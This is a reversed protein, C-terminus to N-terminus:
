EYDIITGTAVGREIQAVTPNSLVLTLTEDVEDHSDYEIPVYVTKQVDGQDFVLTGSTAEYDRGATATGNVTTYNVTVETDAGRDLTVIFSMYKRHASAESMSADAVSIQMPGGPKAAGCSDDSTGLDTLTMRFTGGNEFRYLGAAIYYTGTTDLKVNSIATTGRGDANEYTNLIHTGDSRYVGRVAPYQLTLTEDASSGEVKIQYCHDKTLTTRYWDADDVTEIRNQVTNGPSITATTSTDGPVSDQYAQGGNEDDRITAIAKRTGYSFERGEYASPYLGIGFIETGEVLDDDVTTFTLEISTQGYGIQVNAGAPHHPVYDDDKRAGMSGSPLSDTGTGYGVSLFGDIPPSITIVFVIDGGETTSASAINVEPMRPPPAVTVTYTRKATGDEATVEVTIVNTGATWVMTGDADVTGNLKIVTTADSDLPTATVTTETVGSARTAIYTQTDRDFTRALTVGSLELSHLRAESAPPPSRFVQIGYIETSGDKAQAEWQFPNRHYSPRVQWGPTNLDDDYLPQFNDAYPEIQANPDRPQITITTTSVNHAVTAVSNLLGPAEFPTTLAGPSISFESLGIDGPPGCVTNAGSYFKLGTNTLALDAATPQTNFSNGSIELFTLISAFPTFRASDLATLENCSLDLETLGTLGAFIGAPLAALANSRLYLKTLSDDLDEFVGATLANISNDSLDLTGLDGLGDFIDVNLSALSNDNLYLTQLATTEDFLDVDPSTIGNDNLYLNTLATLGDFLDVNPSAIGNNSLTLTALATLGDFLDAHPSAMGNNSLDLSTLSTLGDFLDVHPSTIGNDSLNLTALATLGDFLEANPSALNNRNLTLTALATLGDFLNDPLSSIMNDNLYLAALGTRGNFTNAPVTTLDNYSLALLSLGTLGDFLDADLDSLKNRHLFLYQLDPLGDFTDEHLSSIENGPLYLLGMSTLGNFTDKHLSSIINSALNLRWLNALGGFTDEHLSSIRNDQLNLDTLATLGDFTDEHISSVRNYPLYLVSLNTLGDFTHEGLVSVLNHDMYFYQLAPTGKFIGDELVKIHNNTLNLDELASLGDFANEHVSSIINDTLILFRLGGSVQSFANAPVTTLMPSYTILLGDLTDLGAFDGAVISANSYGTIDLTTISALQTATVTSCTPSGTLKGLIADQVEQTRDCIGHSSRALNDRQQKDSRQPQTPPVNPPSVVTATSAGTLTESYGDDDTFSVSVKITHGSDANTLVYTSGTAGSIETDTRLWQYSFTANTLGNDDAITSTDATLTQDVEVTGTITPQGTAPSNPTGGSEATVVDSWRSKKSDDYRARVRVRYTAGADLGTVTVQNTTPYAFWDTELNPRRFDEGDPTWTVRYDSLTKSTQPHSDWAIDLEGAEDGPTVTLGTPALRWDPDGSQASANTAAAFAIIAAVTLLALVATVFVTPKLKAALASTM